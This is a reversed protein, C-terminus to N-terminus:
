MEVQSIPTLWRTQSEWRFTKDRFIQTSSRFLEATRIARLHDPPPHIYSCVEGLQCGGRLYHQCRQYNPLKETKSDNLLDRQEKTQHRKPLIAKHVFHLRTLEILEQKSPHSKECPKITCLLSGSKLYPDCCRAGRLDFKPRWKKKFVSLIQDFDEPLNVNKKLIALEEQFRKKQENLKEAQLNEQVKQYDYHRKEQSKQYDYPENKRPVIKRKRPPFSSVSTIVGKGEVLPRGHKDVAQHKGGNRRHRAELEHSSSINDLHPRQPLPSENLWESALCMNMNWRRSPDLTLLGHLFEWGAITLVKSVNPKQRLIAEELTRPYIKKPLVQIKRRRPDIQVSQEVINRYNPWNEETPSGCIKCIQEMQALEVHGHFLPTGIILEALICGVSWNDIAYGYNFAGLLLEPARYWLTVVRNTYRQAGNEEIQRALGFDALKVNGDSDVLVNSGKIDRHIVKSEEHLFRLAECIEQIIFKLNAITLQVDPNLVLGSLDHHMYEFIMYIKADKHSLNPANKTRKKLGIHRVGKSTIVDLLKVINRHRVNQLMKVERVATIPFGDKEAKLSIQKVAVEIGSPSKARCVQGYTGKGVVNKREYIDSLGELPKWKIRDEIRDLYKTNKYLATKRRVKESNSLPCYERFGQIPDSHRLSALVPKM